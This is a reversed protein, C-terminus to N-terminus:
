NEKKIITIYAKNGVTKKIEVVQYSEYRENIEEVELDDYQNFEIGQNLMDQMEEEQEQFYRKSKSM